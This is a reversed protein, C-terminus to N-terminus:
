PFDPQVLLSSVRELGISADINRPEVRLVRRYASDANDVMGYLLYLDGLPILLSPKDGFRTVAKELVDPASGPTEDRRLMEAYEVYSRPDLQDADCNGDAQGQASGRGEWVGGYALLRLKAQAEPHGLEAARQFDLDVRATIM